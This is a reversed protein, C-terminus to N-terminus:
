LRSVLRRSLVGSNKVRQYCAISDFMVDFTIGSPGSHKSRIIKALDKLATTSMSARETKM